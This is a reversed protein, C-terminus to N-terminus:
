AAPTDPSASWCPAAVSLLTDPETSAMFRRSGM